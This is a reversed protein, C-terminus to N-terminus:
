SSEGQGRGAKSGNFADFILLAAGGCIAADAINFAPWEHQQYHFVIFDVVYGLLARDILNGLAGGLILAFAASEVPKTNRLRAIWYVLAVSVVIKVISLAWRQWGGADYFMSFAAGLNHRLTFYFFTTVREVSNYEFSQTAWYKSAQDLIIVLLALGYWKWPLESLKLM